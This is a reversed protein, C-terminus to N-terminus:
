ELVLPTLSIRMLAFKAVMAAFGITALLQLTLISYVKRILAWRLDPSEQMLPYLLDTGAEVDDKQSIWM